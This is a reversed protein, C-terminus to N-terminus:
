ATERRKKEAENGGCATELRTCFARTALNELFM